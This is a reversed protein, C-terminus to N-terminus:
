NNCGSFTGNLVFAPLNENNKNESTCHVTRSPTKEENMKALIICGREGSM